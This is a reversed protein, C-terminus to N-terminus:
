PRPAKAFILRRVTSSKTPLRKAPDARRRSRRMPVLGCVSSSIVSATSSRLNRVRRARRHRLRPHKRPPNSLQHPKGPRHRLPPQRRPPLRKLGHPRLGQRPLKPPRRQHVQRRQPPRHRSPPSRSRRNSPSNPRVAAPCLASSSTAWAIPGPPEQALASGASAALAVAVALAMTWRRRAHGESRNRMLVGLDRQETILDTGKDMGLRYGM